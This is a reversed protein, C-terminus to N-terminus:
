RIILGNCFCYNWVNESVICLIQILTLGDILGVWVWNFWFGVGWYVCVVSGMCGSRLFVSYRAYVIVFGFFRVHILPPFVCLWNCVCVILLVWVVFFMFRLLLHPFFPSFVVIRLVWHFSVSCFWFNVCILPSFWVEDFVWLSWFGVRSGGDGVARGARVWWAAARERGLRYLLLFGLQLKHTNQFLSFLRFDGGIVCVLRRSM